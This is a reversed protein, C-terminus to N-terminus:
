ELYNLSEHLQHMRTSESKDPCQTSIHGKKNCNFCEWNRAPCQDPDHRRGCRYCRDKNYKSANHNVANVFNASGKDLEKNDNEIIEWNIATQCASKFKLNSEKLLKGRLNGDKLGCVFKDRLARELFNGFKCKEAQSKLQMIYECMPLDGQVTSYFKYSESIENTEPECYEKLVKVLDKYSKTSPDDPACMKRLISYAGPGILMIFFAVKRDEKIDNVIFYQQLRLEYEVFSCGLVYSEMHGIGSMEISKEQNGLVKTSNKTSDVVELESESESSSSESKEKKIVLQLNSM